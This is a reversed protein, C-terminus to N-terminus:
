TWEERILDDRPIRGRLNEGEEEGGRIAERPAQSKEVSKAGVEVVFVKLRDREASVRTARRQMGPLLCAAKRARPRRGKM